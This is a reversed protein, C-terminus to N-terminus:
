AILVPRFEPETTFVINSSLAWKLTDRRAMNARHIMCSMCIAFITFAVVASLAIISVLIIVLDSTQGEPPTVPKFHIFM